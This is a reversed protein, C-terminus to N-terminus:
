FLLCIKVQQGTIEMRSMETSKVNKDEREGTIVVEKSENIQVEMKQNIITNKDLVVPISITKFGLYSFVLTYKGQPLSLSYYGYTNTATGTKVENVKVTAGILSEGTGEIM